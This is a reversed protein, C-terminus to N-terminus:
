ELAGVKHEAIQGARGQWSSYGLGNILFFPMLFIYGSLSISQLLKTVNSLSFIRSKFLGLEVVPYTIRRERIFFIAFVIVSVAIFALVLPSAFGNRGGMNLFLILFSLASFAMGAGWYDIRRSAQPVKQEKLFIWSMIIAIVGLPVVLYFLSRWDLAGLFFGSAVPGVLPGALSVSTLIGLAKGREEDGFTATVIAYSLAIIIASGVGQIARYIILQVLSQSISCLVLALTFIGLGILYLKKRGLIDGIKGVIPMLGTNVLLFAVTVWLVVSADTNFIAALRPFAINVMSASMGSMFSGICVSILILWKSGILVNNKMSDQSGPINDQVQLTFVWGPLISRQGLISSNVIGQM